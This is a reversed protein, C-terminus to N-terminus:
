EIGAFMVNSLKKFSKKAAAIDQENGITTSVRAAEHDALLKKLKNFSIEEADFSVKRFILEEELAQQHGKNKMISSYPLLGLTAATRNVGHVKQMINEKKNINGKLHVRENLKRVCDKKFHDTHINSRIQKYLDIYRTPGLDNELEEHVLQQRKACQLLLSSREASSTSDM